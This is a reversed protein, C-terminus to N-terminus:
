VLLASERRIAQRFQLSARRLRSIGVSVQLRDDLRAPAKFHVDAHTVVFGVDLAEALRTHTLGLQELWVSRAREFYRLYNAHYVVGSADTDEYFVQIPFTPAGELQHM